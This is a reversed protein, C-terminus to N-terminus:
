DGVAHFAPREYEDGLPTRLWQLHRRRLRNANGLAELYTRGFGEWAAGDPIWASGALHLRAPRIRLTYPDRYTGVVAGRADVVVGVAGSSRLLRLARRAGAFGLSLRRAICGFKVM